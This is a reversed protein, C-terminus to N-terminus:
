LLSSKKFDEYIIFEWHTDLNKLHLYLDNQLIRM